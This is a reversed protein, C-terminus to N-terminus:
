LYVVSTGSIGQGDVRVFRDFIADVVQFGTEGVPGGVASAAIAGGRQGAEVLIPKGLYKAALTLPVAIALGAVTGIAAKKAVNTWTKKHRYKKSKKKFGGSGRRALAM